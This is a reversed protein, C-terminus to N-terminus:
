MFFYLFLFPFFNTCNEWIRGDTKAASNGTWWIQIQLNIQILMVVKLGYVESWFSENLHKICCLPLFVPYSEWCKVAYKM